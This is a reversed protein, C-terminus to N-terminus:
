IPFMVMWRDLMPIAALLTVRVVDKVGELSFVGGFANTPFAVQLLPLAAQPPDLMNTGTGAPPDPM